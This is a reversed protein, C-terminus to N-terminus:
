RHRHYSNSVTHHVNCVHCCQRVLEAEDGPHDWPSLNWNMGFVDVRSVNGHQQLWSLYITGTSPHENVLSDMFTCNEFVTMGHMGSTSISRRCDESAHMGVCVQESVNEHPSLGSYERTDQWERVIHIDFKEGIRMNRVNNFRAVRLCTSVKIHDEESLPGNGIVCFEYSSSPSLNTINTQSVDGDRVDSFALLVVVFLLASMCALPRPVIDSM